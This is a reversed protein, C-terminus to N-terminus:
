GETDELLHLLERRKERERLLIEDTVEYNVFCGQNDRERIGHTASYFHHAWAITSSTAIAELLTFVDETEASSFVGISGVLAIYQTLEARITEDKSKSNLRRLAIFHQRLSEAVRGRQEASLYSRRLQRLASTIELLHHGALAVPTASPLSDLVSEPEGAPQTNWEFGKRQAM